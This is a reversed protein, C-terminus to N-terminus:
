SRRNTRDPIHSNLKYEMIIIVVVVVSIYTYCHIDNINTVSYVSLFGAPTNHYLHGSM